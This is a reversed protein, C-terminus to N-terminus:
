LISRGYFVVQGIIFDKAQEMTLDYPPFDGDIQNESLIKINPDVPSTRLIKKLKLEQEEKILYIRNNLPKIRNLDVIVFDELSIIPEMNKEPMNFMILNKYDIIKLIKFLREPILEYSYNDENNFDSINSNFNKYYKIKILNTEGQTILEEGFIQSISCNFLQTIKEFYKKNLERSNTEIMYLNPVSMNLYKALQERSIGKKERMEQLKNKM